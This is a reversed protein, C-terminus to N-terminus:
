GVVEYRLWVADDAVQELHILKLPIVDEPPALDPARFITGATAGGVLCPNILVSVESVLGARLLAGNLTGGSDVRVLEVGYRANLEELAARLDVQEAGAVITEVHHARLTELVSQPTAQSCLAIVDRWYPEQRLLHWSRLRGRSDAVVLLQRSDESDRNPPEFAPDDNELSEEPGYANLLTNSGSLMADAEWRAALGYYRGMDVSFGDIRGDVSIENFMVVRPLM